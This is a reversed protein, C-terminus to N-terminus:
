NIYSIKEAAKRIHEPSEKWEIAKRAVYKDFEETGRKTSIFKISSTRQQIICSIRLDDKNQIQQEQEDEYSTLIGSQTNEIRDCMELCENLRNRLGAVMQKLHYEGIGNNQKPDRM